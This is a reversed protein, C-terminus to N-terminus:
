SEWGVSGGNKVYTVGHRFQGDPMKLCYSVAAPTFINTSSKTHFPVSAELRTGQPYQNRCKFRFGGKSVDECDVVLDVGSFRICAAMKMATRRSKRRDQNPAGSASANGESASPSDSMKKSAPPRRSERWIGSANCTTCSRILERTSEFIEMDSDSLSLTCVSHCGTCELHLLRGIAAPRSFVDWLDTEPNLFALEYIDGAAGEAKHAAVSAIAEEGTEPNRVIVESNPSLTASLLLSIGDRQLSLTRTSELFQKGFADVGTVEV